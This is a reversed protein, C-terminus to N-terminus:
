LNLNNLNEKASDIHAEIESFAKNNEELKYQKFGLPKINFMDITSKSKKNSTPAQKTYNNLKAINDNYDNVKRKFNKEEQELKIYALEIKSIASSINIKTDAVEISINSAKTAIFLLVVTSIIMCFSLAHWFTRPINLNDM